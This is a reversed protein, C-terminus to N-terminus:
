PLSEKALGQSNASHRFGRCETFDDKKLTAMLSHVVQLRLVESTCTSFKEAFVVEPWFSDTTALLLPREVNSM